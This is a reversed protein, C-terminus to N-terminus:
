EDHDGGVARLGPVLAFLISESRVRIEATGPMGDHYQRWRGNAYFQATPLHAQVIVSSGQLALSDAIEQGLFRRVEGPGVVENGISDITLSQYAYRFGNLELRLQHGQKLLPRYHGPLVAIVSLADADGAITLLSEGPAVLQNPRIRLDRVIGATPAFIMREKLRREASEIQVRSAALQQQALLDNPNRLRNIQQSNFERNLRELEIREQLDNFRLLLQHAEVRQGPRIVIEAITGGTMATVTTRGDDRVVAVGTAYENIRGFCLYSFGVVFVAVLLWYTWSTWRPSIRLIDGHILKERSHSDLAEERFITSRSPM